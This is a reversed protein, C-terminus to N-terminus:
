AFWGKITGWFGRAKQAEELEQKTEALDILTGKLVDILAEQQDTMLNMARYIDALHRMILVEREAIPTTPGEPEPIVPLPKWAPKPAEVKPAEVPPAAPEEIWDDIFEQVNAPAPKTKPKPRLKPEYKPASRTKYKVHYTSYTYRKGSPSITTKKGRSEIEGRSHMRSVMTQVGSPTLHPMQAAIEPTTMDPNRHLLKYILRATEGKKTRKRM